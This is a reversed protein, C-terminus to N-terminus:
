KYDLVAPAEDTAGGAALLPSGAAEAGAARLRDLPRLGLRVQLAMAVVLAAGLVILSIALTRMAEHLPAAIADRPATAVVVLPVGGTTLPQIRFHLPLEHPGPGDAPAPHDGRPPLHFPPIEFSAGGLARSLIANKPGIIEWYWGRQPGDFPPGDAIGTLAITGDDHAKPRKPVDHM